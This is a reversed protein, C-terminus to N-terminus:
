QQCEQSSHLGSALLWNIGGTGEKNVRKLRYRAWKEGTKRTKQANEGGRWSPELSGCAPGWPWSVAALAGLCRKLPRALEPHESRMAARPHGASQRMRQGPRSPRRHPPQPPRARARLCIRPRRSLRKRPRSKRRPRPRHPLRPPAPARRPPPSRGERRQAPRDRSPPM